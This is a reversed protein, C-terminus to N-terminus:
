GVPRHKDLIIISKMRQILKTSAHFAPIVIIPGTRHANTQM